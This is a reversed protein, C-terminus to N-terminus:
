KFVSVFLKHELCFYRLKHKWKILPNKYIRSDIEPFTNNWKEEYKKDLRLPTLHWRAILKLYDLGQNIIRLAEVRDYFSEIRNVNDVIADYRKMISQVDNSHTPTETNLAYHYLPKNVYSISEIYYLLQLIFAMDEGQTRQPVNIGKSQYLETRIMKNWVFWPITQKFINAYLEEKTQNPIFSTFPVNKDKTSYYFDCVVMDSNDSHAKRYMLEYMEKDVWDDSDCHAIYEGTAKQIGHWRALPLGGNEPLNIIFVSKNEGKLRQEYEKIMNNLITMSNDKTCDNVFIYEIGYLSQEFLSRVCREIYREVGYIPVIVSVPVKNDSM